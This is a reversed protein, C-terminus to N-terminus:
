HQPPKAGLPPLRWEVTQTLDKRELLMTTDALAEKGVGLHMKVPRNLPVSCVVFRGDNDVDSDRRVTRTAIAGSALFETSWTTTVVANPIRARDPAYVHGLLVVEKDYVYIDRCVDALVDAIAALELQTRATHARIAEVPQSVLRSQVYSRLTTDSVSLEYKGPIAVLEFEGAGDTLVTDQTGTLTVIAGGVPAKTRRQTVTGAIIALSDRFETGDDWKAELVMGGAEVIEHVRIDTREQRTVRQLPDRSARSAASTMPAIELSPLRLHWREVFAVGNPMTRFQIYGGAKASMAPRELATYLFDLSRLQPVTADIWIVGTVEVLTDRGPVPSFALGIQGRHTADAAQVHFCHTLAFSEDLLVDADPANYIRTAPDDLIYGHLAFHGPTHAAVFPRSTRGSAVHKTQARIVEDNPRMHSDYVVSTAMAPNLERAVVTALLGARAQEWLQFASGRDASGPCLESDTVRVTSLMPPIREMVIEIPSGAAPLSGEYPRYGIRMVRLKAARPDRAVRFGGAADSLARATTTGAPDLLTVVAGGLGARTPADLIVGRLQAGLVSPVLAALYCLARLRRSTRSQLDGTASPIVPQRLRDPMTM